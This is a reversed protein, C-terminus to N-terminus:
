LGMTWARRASAAAANWPMPSSAARACPTASPPRARLTAICPLTMAKSLINRRAPMRKTKTTGRSRRNFTSRLLRVESTCRSHAPSGAGERGFGGRGGAASTAGVEDEGRHRGAGDKEVGAVLQPRAPLFGGVVRLDLGVDHGDGRLGAPQHLLHEDGLVLHHL